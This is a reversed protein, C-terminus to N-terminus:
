HPRGKGPSQCPTHNNVDLRARSPIRAPFGGKALALRPGFRTDFLSAEFGRASYGRTTKLAPPRSIAAIHKDTNM